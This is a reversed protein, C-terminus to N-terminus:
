THTVSVRCSRRTPVSRRRIASSPPWAAAETRDLHDAEVLAALQWRVSRPNADGTLRERVDAATFSGRPDAVAHFQNIDAVFAGDLTLARDRPGAALDDNVRVRSVDLDVILWETSM